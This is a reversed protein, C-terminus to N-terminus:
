GFDVPKLGINELKLPDFDVDDNNRMALLDALTKGGSTLKTYDDMSLLVHGPRGRDMIFVPGDKTAKKAKGTDQNFERSSLVTM